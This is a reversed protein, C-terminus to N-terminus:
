ANIVRLEVRRNPAQEERSGEVVPMEQGRGVVKLNKAAIGAEILSDAIIRARSESLALNYSATGASHCSHGEVVVTAKLGANESEKILNKIHKIDQAVVEKQDNKLEAKDFDFYVVKIDSEEAEIWAFEKSEKDDKAASDVLSITDEELDTDEDEEDLEEDEDEEDMSFSVKESSILDVRTEVGDRNCKKECKKKGCSPLSLALAISLFAISWNKM